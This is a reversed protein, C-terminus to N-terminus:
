NEVRDSRARQPLSGDARGAAGPADAFTRLLDRFVSHDRIADLDPDTRAVEAWAPGHSLATALMGLARTGDAPDVKATLAYICAIRYTTEGSADRRAPIM